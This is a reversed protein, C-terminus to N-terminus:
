RLSGLSLFTSSLNSDPNARQPLLLMADVVSVNNTNVKCDGQDYPRNLLVERADM